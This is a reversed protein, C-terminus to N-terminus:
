PREKSKIREIERSMKVALEKLTYISAVWMGVHFAGYVVWKYGVLDTRDFTSMDAYMAVMAAQVAAQM